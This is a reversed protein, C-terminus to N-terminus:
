RGLESKGGRCGGNGAISGIEPRQLPYPPRQPAVRAIQSGTADPAGAGGGVLDLVQVWSQTRPLTGLRVHGM